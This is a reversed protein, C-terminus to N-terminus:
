AECDFFRKLFDSLMAVAERNTRIKGEVLRWSCLDLCGGVILRAYQDLNEIGYRADRRFHRRVLPTFVMASTEAFGFGAEGKMASRLERLFLKRERFFGLLGDALEAIRPEGEGSDFLRALASADPLFLADVLAEKSAFYRYLTGKAVGAATAIEAMTSSAVDSSLFLARAASLIDEASTKNPAGRGPRRGDGGAESAKM